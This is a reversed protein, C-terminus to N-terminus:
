EAPKEISVRGAKWDHRLHKAGHEKLTPDAKIREMYLEYTMGDEILEWARYGHSTEGRRPNEPVNRTIICGKFSSTRGRGGGEVETGEESYKRLFPFVTKIAEEKNAFRKVAEVDEVTGAVRNNLEVMAKLPVDELDAKKKVVFAEPNAEQGAKLSAIKRYSISSGDPSLLYSLAM